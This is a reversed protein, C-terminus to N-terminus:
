ARVAGVMKDLKTGVGKSWDPGTRHVDLTKMLDIMASILGPFSCVFLRSPAITAM